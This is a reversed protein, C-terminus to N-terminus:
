NWLMAFIVCRVYVDNHFRQLVTCENQKTNKKEEVIFLGLETVSIILGASKVMERERQLSYVCSVSKYMLRNSSLDLFVPYSRVSM